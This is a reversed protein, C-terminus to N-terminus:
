AILDSLSYLETFDMLAVGTTSALQRASLTFSQNSVVLAYDAHYHHMGSFVEQVASNGIPSSYLKCQIAVTKGYKEALVDVGQDGSKGNVMVEWGNKKLIDACYHEFESPTLRTIDHHLPPQQKTLQTVVREIETFVFPSYTTLFTDKTSTASLLAKKENLRNKLDIIDEDNAILHNFFYLKEKNWAETIPRKYDDVSLKQQKKKLLIHKHEMIIECCRTELEKELITISNLNAMRAVEYKLDNELSEDSLSYNSYFNYNGTEYVYRKYVIIAEDQNDQHWLAIAGQLGVFGQQRLTDLMNIETIKAQLEARKQHQEKAIKNFWSITKLLITFLILLVFGLAIITERTPTILDLRTM